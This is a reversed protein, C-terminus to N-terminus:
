IMLLPPAEEADDAAAAGSWALWTEPHWVLVTNNTSFMYVERELGLYVVFHKPLVVRRQGDIAMRQVNGNLRAIHAEATVPDLEPNQRIAAERKHLETETLLVVVRHWAGTQLQRMRHLTGCVYGDSEAGVLARAGKPLTMQHKPSLRQTPLDPKM